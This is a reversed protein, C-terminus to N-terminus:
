VAIRSPLEITVPVLRCNCAARCLSWGTGPLGIVEWYEAPEIRGERIDCDPCNDGITTWRLREVSIGKSKYIAHEGIRSAETLGGYMRAKISNSFEGFLRGSEKADKSLVQFISGEAMGQIRMAEIETQLKGAFAQVDLALLNELQILMAELEAQYDLDPM